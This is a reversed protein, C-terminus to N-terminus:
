SDTHIWYQNLSYRSSYYKCHGLPAFIVLSIYSLDKIFARSIISLSQQLWRCPTHQASQCELSYTSSSWGDSAFTPDGIVSVVATSKFKHVLLQHALRSSIICLQWGSDLLVHQPVLSDACNICQHNCQATHCWRAQFASRHHSGFIFNDRLHKLIRIAVVHVLSHKSGIVPAASKQFYNLCLAPRKAEHLCLSPLFGFYFM